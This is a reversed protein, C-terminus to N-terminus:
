ICLSVEQFNARELFRIKIKQINEKAIEILICNRKLNLSAEGVVGSGAFSDLVTEGEYTVYSLIQECLTLPLESQHIKKNKPVPAIDFVTPLMKSTGSMFCTYGLKQSKKVDIRM